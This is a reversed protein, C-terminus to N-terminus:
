EMKNTGKNTGFVSFCLFRSENHHSQNKKKGQLSPISHKLLKIVKFIFHTGNDPLVDMKSELIILLQDVVLDNIILCLFNM